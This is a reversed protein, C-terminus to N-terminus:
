KSKEFIKKQERYWEQWKTLQNAVSHYLGYNEIVVDFVIDASSNAPIEKLEPAPSMYVEPVKPFEQKVPLTECATLFLSLSLIVLLKM